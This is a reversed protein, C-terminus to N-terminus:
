LLRLQRAWERLTVPDIPVFNNKAPEVALEEMRAAIQAASPKQKNHATAASESPEEFIRCEVVSADNIGNWVQRLLPEVAPSDQNVTIYRSEIDGTGPHMCNQKIVFKLM